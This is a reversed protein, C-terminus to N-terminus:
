HQELEIQDTEFNYPLSFHEHFIKWEQETKRFCITIRARLGPGDNESIMQFYGSVLAIDDGIDFNLEEHRSEPKISVLPLAVEWLVRIAGVGKFTEKVDFMIVDPMYAKTLGDIDKNVFANKWDELIQRLEAEVNLKDVM